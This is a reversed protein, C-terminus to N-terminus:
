SLESGPRSVQVAAAEGHARDSRAPTGAAPRVATRRWVRDVAVAALVAISLEASHRFRPNGYSLLTTVTGSVFPTTLIWIPVRRRRLVVLGYVALPLLVFYMVAGLRMLPRSRGEPVLFPRRLGWSLELRAALVAPLRGVHHRAYRIGEHGARDLAAAENFHRPDRGTSVHYCPVQWTGIKDGYYAQHCNAGALTEGGETAVLVPRDFVTWNRVTWPALVVAFTLCVVAVARLGRRRRMLPLLLLLLLILGEGRTLAALGLIAGLVIARGASPAATLRYAALLALAVLFGYLSETMLAGDATVLIPYVAAIGAALLGARPTALRRGLLGLAVITGGGTLAGLLRQPDAGTAGLKDLGALLLTYLPAREATPVAIRHAIWEDPRVFGHGHAVIKALTFYYAEDDFIGPPWPAVLLTQAVRIAVGVAAITGLWVGFSGSTPRARIIARKAVTV